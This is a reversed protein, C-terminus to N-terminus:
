HCNCVCTCTCDLERSLANCCITAYIGSYVYVKQPRLLLKLPPQALSKSWHPIFMSLKLVSGNVKTCQDHKIQPKSTNEQWLELSSEVLIGCRGRGGEGRHRREVGEGRAGGVDLCM